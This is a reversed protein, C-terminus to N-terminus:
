RVSMMKKDLFKKMENVFIETNKKFKDYDAGSVEKIDRHIIKKFVIYNNRMIDAHVKKIIGKKVMKTELLDAVHDPSPPIEGLSMLAAHAADVSAWYLDVMASLLHDKARHVSAPAMVFYTHIAERTPRIRGNDLLSQLPDFVGTDILSIGYRLVNIAVPDGARVYEWWSTFKMSQLHLREGNPMDSLIKEMVVRYTQTLERSLNLSVDDLIILVDIDGEKAMKKQEEGFSAKATSGFLVLAKIFTGFEQYARKAFDRAINFEVEPFHIDTEREKKEINFKM